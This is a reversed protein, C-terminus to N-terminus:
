AGICVYPIDLEDLQERIEKSYTSYYTTFYRCKIGWFDVIYGKDEFYLDRITELLTKGEEGGRTDEDPLSNKLENFLDKHKELDEIKIILTPTYSM